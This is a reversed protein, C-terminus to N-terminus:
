LRNDIIESTILLKYFDLPSSDEDVANNPTNPTVFGTNQITFCFNKLSNGDPEKWPDDDFEDTEDDINARSQADSESENSDAM